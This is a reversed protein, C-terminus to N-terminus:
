LGAKIVDHIHILGVVKENEVVVLSTINHQEMVLLATYALEHPAIFKPHTTAIDQACADFLKPGLECARRLDGDTIIGRLEHNNDVVIGLGRKKSTIAILVDKFPTTPFVLPLEDNKHMVSAVTLLLRKGLAGAPHNRAFDKENFGRLNSITLAVADGFAMMLTSSSSPALNLPCAEREIPLTIVLDAKDCLTGHKCCWLCTTINRSKLIPLILSFEDGTASKSLAIFIDGQQLAGLDGHLADCPHLSFSPIALSSYTASLKQAILGSKGVGSFIVKGQVNLLHDILTLAQPPINNALSLIANAEARLFSGLLTSLMDPNLAHAPRATPQKRQALM